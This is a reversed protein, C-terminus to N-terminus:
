MRASIACEERGRCCLKHWKPGSNERTFRQSVNLVGGRRLVRKGIESLGESCNSEKHKVSKSSDTNSASLEASSPISKAVM